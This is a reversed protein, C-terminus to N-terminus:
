DPAESQRYHEEGWQMGREIEEKMRKTMFPLEALCKAAKAKRIFADRAKETTVEFEMDLMYSYVGLWPGGTRIARICHFYWYIAPEWEYYAKVRDSGVSIWLYVGTDHKSKPLRASIRCWDFLSLEHGSDLFTEFAYRFCYDPTFFTAAAHPDYFDLDYSGGLALGLRNKVPTWATSFREENLSWEDMAVLLMHNMMSEDAFLRVGKLVLYRNTPVMAEIERAADDRAVADDFAMMVFGTGESQFVRTRLAHTLQDLYGAVAKPDDTRKAAMQAACQERRSVLYALLTDATKADLVSILHYVHVPLAPVSLDIDPSFASALFDNYLPQIETDATRVVHPFFNRSFVNSKQFVLTRPTVGALMDEFRGDGCAEKVDLWYAAKKAPRFVVLYVPLAYSRWYQLDAEAAHFAFTRKTESHLYSEGSKVQLAIVIGSPEDPHRCFEIHADVGVDEELVRRFIHGERNTTDRIYNLAANEAAAHGSRRKVSSM